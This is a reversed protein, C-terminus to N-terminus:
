PYKISSRLTPVIIRDPGVYSHTPRSVRRHESPSPKQLVPRDKRTILIVDGIVAELDGSKIPLLTGIRLYVYRRIEKAALTEKQTANESTLTVVDRPQQSCSFATIFIFGCVIVAKIKLAMIM